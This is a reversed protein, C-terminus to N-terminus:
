RWPPVGRGGGLKAAAFQRLDPMDDVILLEANAKRKAEVEARVEEDTLKKIKKKANFLDNEDNQPPGQAPEQDQKSTGPQTSTAPRNRKKALPNIEGVTIYDNGGENAAKKGRQWPKSPSVGPERQLRAPPQQKQGSGVPFFLIKQSDSAESVRGEGGVPTPDDGHLFEDKPKLDLVVNKKSNM